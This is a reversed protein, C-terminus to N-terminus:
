SSNADVKHQVSVLVFELEAPLDVALAPLDAAAAAGAVDDGTSRAGREGGQSGTGKLGPAGVELAGVVDDLHVGGYVRSSSVGRRISPVTMSAPRTESVGRVGQDPGSVGERGGTCDEAFTNTCRACGRALDAPRTTALNTREGPDETLHYLEFRGVGRELLKWGDEIVGRRLSNYPGEPLELYIPRAAVAEGRLDGLLSEASM